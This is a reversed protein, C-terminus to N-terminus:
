DKRDGMPGKKRGNRRQASGKTILTAPFSTRAQRLDKRKRRLAGQPGKRTHQGTLHNVEYMAYFADKDMWRLRQM